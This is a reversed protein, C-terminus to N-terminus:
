RSTIKTTLKVKWFNIIYSISIHDKATELPKAKRQVKM